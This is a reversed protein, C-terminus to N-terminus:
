SLEVLQYDALAGANAIKIAWFSSTSGIGGAGGSSLVQGYATSREIMMCKNGIDGAATGLAANLEALTPEKDGGTESEWVADTKMRDLRSNAKLALQNSANIALDSNDTQVANFGADAGAASSGDSTRTNVLGGYQQEAAATAVDTSVKNGTIDIGNGEIVASGQSTQQWVEDDSDWTFATNDDAIRHTDGGNLSAFIRTFGFRKAAPDSSPLDSQTGSEQRYDQSGTGFEVVQIDGQAGNLTGFVRDPLASYAKRYIVMQYTEAGSFYADLGATEVASWLVGDSIIANVLNTLTVAASGGIQFQNAAPAGAVATFTEPAVGDEITIFDTAQLNTPITLLIGQLVCGSAGDLLQEASLLIEKWTNGSVVQEDVYGKNAADTDVAPDGAPLTIHGNAQRQTILNATAAPGFAKETVANSETGVLTGNTGQDHNNTDAIGHSKLHTM